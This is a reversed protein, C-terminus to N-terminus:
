DVKVVNDAPKGIKDVVIIEFETVEERAETRTSIVFSPPAGTVERPKAYPLDGFGVTKLLVVLLPDPVPDNIPVIM